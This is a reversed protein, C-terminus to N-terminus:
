VVLEWYRGNFKYWAEYEPFFCIAGEPANSALDQIRGPM